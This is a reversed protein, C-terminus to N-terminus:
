SLFETRWADGDAVAPVQAEHDDADAVSETERSPTPPADVEKSGGEPLRASTRRAQKSSAQAEALVRRQEAIAAFIATEDVRRHGAERLTRTALRQEWLTVAPRGLDACPIRLHGGAALEVFVASMDRPDYKVRCSREDSDLLPALTGDFYTVNFLRVGERRVMRQQFPLFDLVFAAPDPPLGPDGSATIGDAWAAAPTTALASHVENHYPGLIELALIRELERLTLVAKQESPYDGRAIVNSSTTGPLAHVRTMLTGMLREIHGGFRPTAPPRYDIRVGHQQCGRKLARSHFEAGNDLHLSRPLGHMPWALDLDNRMLWESKPLIGQAIAMAVGAASPADLSLYFGLVSRSFVDLLLTLWPRGLVARLRDDVLQIDVKTHDIQVVDLPSRPRLGPRVPVFRQRAAAAGERAKVMERLSRASVRAQIATRSPPKLGAATCDTRLDRRLKAMTPREHSMYIDNIAQEIRQEVDCPLLRAGKNPGPRMVVLSGTVPNERFTAILRYVQAPSLGLAGGAAKVAARSNIGAVVLSRVVGERRVAESWVDEPIDLPRALPRPEKAAVM